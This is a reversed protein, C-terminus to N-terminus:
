LVGKIVSDKERVLSLVTRLDIPCKSVTDSICSTISFIIKTLIVESCSNAVEWYRKYRKRLGHCDAVAKEKCLKWPLGAGDGNHRVYFYWVSPLSSNIRAM